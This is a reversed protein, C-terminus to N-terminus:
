RPSAPPRPTAGRGSGRGHRWRWLDRSPAPLTLGALVACVAAAMAGADAFRNEPSKALAQALVADWGADLGPLALSPAQPAEGLIRTLVGPMGGAFARQGTLCEYLVVGVAWLDARHDVAEGRVQEPAMWAPTGLLTGPETAEGDGMRAIGFDGLRVQGPGPAADMALLINAPKVDRHVIGRAHAHGLADLLQLVLTAAEAQPLRRDRALLASLPEGIVLDMAIWAYDPGDGADHVTVIHPHNLRASMRAEAAIRAPDPGGPRRHLLKIAVLRRLRLDLAELVMGSAGQGILDRPAFRGAIPATDM